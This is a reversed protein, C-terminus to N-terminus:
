RKGMPSGSRNWSLSNGFYVKTHPWPIEIGEEDFAKKLRRRLEGM